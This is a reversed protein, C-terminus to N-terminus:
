LSDVEATLSKIAALAVGMADVFLIHKDSDGLGFAAKFDQAMPGIHKEGPYEKYEWEFVDLDRLKDLVDDAPVINQKADRDSIAGAILASGAISGGAGIAGGWIGSNDSPYQPANALGGGLNQ